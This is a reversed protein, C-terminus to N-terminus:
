SDGYADEARRFWLLGGVLSVVTWVGAIAALKWRFGYGDLILGRNLEIFCYLPNLEFLVKYRSGELYANVNFLVGSAYFGLRFIFPLVQQVDAVHSVARATIMAWGAGFLTQVLFLPVIALWEVAPPEGSAIAVGLMVVYAPIMALTETLSTTVPLLARPFTVIQVLGRYKTLSKGGATVVKQTFTYTFIGIALYGIFNDVGRTVDLVLGFFVFFVGIQLIPNLLHWLNGLLSNIQRSKLESNAVYFAYERRSWLTRLYTGLRDTARADRLQSAVASNTSPSTM